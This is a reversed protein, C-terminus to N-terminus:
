QETNYFFAYILKLIVHKLYIDIECEEQFGHYIFGSNFNKSIELLLLGTQFLKNDM